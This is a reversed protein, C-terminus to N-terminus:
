HWELNRFFLYGVLVFIAVDMPLMDLRQKPPFQLFFVRDGFRPEPFWTTIAKRFARPLDMLVVFLLVFVFVVPWQRNQFARAAGPVMLTTVFPVIITEVLGLLRPAGGLHAWQLCYLKGVFYTCSIALSIIAALALRTVVLDDRHTPDFFISTACAVYIVTVASTAIVVDRDM